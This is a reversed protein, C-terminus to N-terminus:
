AQCLLNPSDLTSRLIQVTRICRECVLMPLRLSNDPRVRIERPKLISWDEEISGKQVEETDILVQLAFEATVHNLIQM